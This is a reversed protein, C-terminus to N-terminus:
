KVKEQLLPDQPLLLKATTMPCFMQSISGRNKERWQLGGLKGVPKAAKRVDSM